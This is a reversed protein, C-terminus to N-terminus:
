NLSDIYAQYQKKLEERVKELGAAEMDDHYQKIKAETEDGYIGFNGKFDAKLASLTAVEVEVNTQDFVFGTVPALTYTNPSYQYDLVRVINDNELAEANYRIYNPNYTLSYPPMTYKESEAVDLLKVANDGIAEWDVGEIGYYFLDHNEKSAWMWDLFKMVEDTKDSWSPVCLFNWTKMDCVIAGEEFNRMRDDIVYFGIEADPISTKMNQVVTVWESLTTYTAGYVGAEFMNRVDDQSSVADQNTYQLWYPVKKFQEGMFDYQYGEPFDAFMTDDDGVTTIGKVTQGDESLAIAFKAGAVQFM